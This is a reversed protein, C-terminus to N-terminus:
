NSTWHENRKIILFTGMTALLSFLEEDNSVDTNFWTEFSWDATIDISGDAGTYTIM